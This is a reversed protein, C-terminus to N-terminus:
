YTREGLKEPHRVSHECTRLEAMSDNTVEASWRQVKRCRGEDRRVMGQEEWSRVLVEFVDSQIGPNCHSGEKM